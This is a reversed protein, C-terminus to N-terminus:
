LPPAPKIGGHEINLQSRYKTKLSAVASFGMECLYSTAFPLLICAARQGILPYEREVGFWFESLTQAKFRLRLTSDSTMEIFQDEEASSFDAPAAANFPDMVWAYQASNIPFYKQFLGRLSSIHQKICPIVTTAGSDTTEAVESLNEFVDINPQDLRRGWVELKRSFATIKDALHPLHKDKGQLQLNLENLKGFVDSLYALKLLFQEDCFKSAAEYMHEEELFMRIEARLEFVRSLVKGRSLWRAESHFLVSTHDAGMEECLASFLRAKLPRIKIFNVVSVVETLVENLEPSLQRSALAERHIVCHTWHADPAVRKILAQLGKRSGAMTQAGDSCFGVCNEWKLHHEKLYSDMIKFLEDATARNKIYKCFLLEECLSECNVFRVYSLFLCDKNSDTAKDVQLAFRSEKLKEILQEELDSSIDWIRRAITDNSLPVAKLKAASTEDLMVSVMDLAAPLILQEAITHPKKCQAIRYAVRYSAMQAKGNASAAKVMRNEQQRYEALKRQFFDIPKNVHSPHTTELHRRLKNPRMSDAALPKLCLVCMPREEAGVATATFGLALYGEDYKRKPQSKPQHPGDPKHREAPAPEVVKTTRTVFKDM